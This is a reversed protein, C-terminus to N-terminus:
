KAFESLREIAKEIDETAAAFSFRAYTKYDAGFAEGPVLAVKVQNLIAECLAFSDAIGKAQMLKSFDIFGYFAGEPKGLFCGPIKNIGEWLIIRREDFAQRMEAVREQPGQLAAVVAKQCISNANSSLHEKLRSMNAVLEAPGILYGIRWGTMCYTKSAANVVITREFMGPLSAVSLQQRNDYLFHEYVEDSIIWLDHEQALRAIKKIEEADIVAGTPNSPSNLLIAKTKNTIAARIDGATIHFAQDSPLSVFVGGAYRIQESYSVWYPAPVIVEDGPNLITQFLIFLGEKGGNTIIVNELACKVNNERVMKDVVAQKLEPIGASSTYGAFNDTIAQQTAEQIHGAVPFDPEGASFNLVDEGAAKLEKAKACVSLTASPEIQTVRQCLKQSMNHM